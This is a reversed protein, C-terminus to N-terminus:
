RPRRPPAPRSARTRWRSARRLGCPAGGVASPASCRSGDLDSDQGHNPADSHILAALTTGPHRVRRVVGTTRGPRVIRPTEVADGRCTGLRPRHDNRRASRFAASRVRHAVRGTGWTGSVNARLSRGTHRSAGPSRQRELDGERALRARERLVGHQGGVRAGLGGPAASRPRPRTTSSPRPLPPCAAWRSRRRRHPARPRRGAARCCSRDDDGLGDHGHSEAQRRQGALTDVGDLPDVRVDLRQALRLREQARPWPRQQGGRVRRPRALEDGVAVLQTPPRARAAPPVVRRGPWGPRPCGPRACCGSANGPGPAPRLSGRLQGDRRGRGRIATAAARQRERHAVLGARQHPGEADDGACPMLM